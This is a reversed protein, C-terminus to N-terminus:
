FTPMNLFAATKILMHLFLAVKVSQEGHRLLNSFTNPFLVM